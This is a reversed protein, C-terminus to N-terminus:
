CSGFETCWDIVWSRDAKVLFPLAMPLWKTLAAECKEVTTWGEHEGVFWPCFESEVIYGVWAAVIDDCMHRYHEPFIIVALAGWFVPLHDVCEEPNESQPCFEAILLASQFEIAAPSSAYGGLSPAAAACDDCTWETSVLTLCLILLSVQQMSVTLYSETGM